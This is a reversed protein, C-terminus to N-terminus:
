IQLQNISQRLSGILMDKGLIQNNYEEQKARISEM